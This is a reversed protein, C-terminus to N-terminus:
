VLQQNPSGGAQFPSRGATETVPKASAEDAISYRGLGGVASSVLTQAITDLSVPAAKDPPKPPSLMTTVPIEATFLEQDSQSRARDLSSTPNSNTARQLQLPPPSKAEDAASLLTHAVDVSRSTASPKRKVEKPTSWHFPEKAPLVCAKIEELELDEREGDDHVIM